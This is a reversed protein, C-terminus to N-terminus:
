DSEGQEHRGQRYRRLGRVLGEHGREVVDHRDGRRHWLIAVDIWIPQEHHLRGDPAEHAAFREDTVEVVVSVQLSGAAGNHLNRGGAGDAKERAQVQVFQRPGAWTANAQRSGEDREAAAPHDDAAEGRFVPGRCSHFRAAEQDDIAAPNYDLGDATTGDVARPIHGCQIIAGSRRDEDGVHQIPRRSGTGIRDILSRYDPNSQADGRATRRGDGRFGDDAFPKGSRVSGAANTTPGVTETLPASFTGRPNAIAGFPLIRVTFPPSPLRTSVVGAPSCTAVLISSVLGAGGPGLPFPVRNPM